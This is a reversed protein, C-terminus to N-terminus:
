DDAERLIRYVSVDLRSLVLSAVEADDIGLEDRLHSRTMEFHGKKHM